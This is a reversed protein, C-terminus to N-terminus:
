ARPNERRKKILSVCLHNELAACKRCHPTVALRPEGKIATILRWARDINESAGTLLLSVSGEGGGVGNMAIPMASVEALQMLAETETVVMGPLPMVGVAMHTKHLNIKDIGAAQIIEDLNIHASKNLTMPVILNIGKSLVYRFAKGWEGGDAEGLLVGARHQQDLINGSKIMVDKDTMRKFLADFDAVPFDLHKEEGREFYVEKRVANDAAATCGGAEFIFGCVYAAKDISKGCLEEYIYGNSSCIQLNVIGDRYAEQVLPLAAIAKAILRKSEASTLTVIIKEM